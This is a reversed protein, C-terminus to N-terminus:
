SQVNAFAEIMAAHARIGCRFREIAFQENPSHIRDTELSFGVLLSDVGLIDQFSGVIPLSGGSGVLVAEQEFLPNMSQRASSIWPSDTAVCLGPNCGHEEFSWRGGEPTRETFFAKLADMIRQPDQGPVLRCSVKCSADAPIVTKAGPGTYGGWLGNLDCTPRSWIRELLSREAEGQTTQLGASALFASEDFDLASWEALLATDDEVGDYFGKIQVRGQDDHLASVIRSLANLPNM